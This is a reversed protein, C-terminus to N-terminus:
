KNRQNEPQSLTPLNTKDQEIKEAIQLFNQEIKQKISNNQMNPKRLILILGIFLFFVSVSLFGLTINGLLQGIWLALAILSFFFGIVLIVVGIVKPVATAVADSVSEGTELITLQIKREIIRKFDGPIKKLLDIITLLLENM